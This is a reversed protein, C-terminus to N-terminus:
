YKVYFGSKENKEMPSLKKGISSFKIILSVQGLERDEEISILSSQFPAGAASAADRKATAMSVASQPLLHTQKPRGMALTGLSSEMMGDGSGAHVGLSHSEKM